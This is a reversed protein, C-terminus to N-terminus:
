RGPPVNVGDIRVIRRSAGPTEVGTGVRAEGGEGLVVTALVSWARGEPEGTLRRGLEPLSAGRMGRGPSLLSVAELLNTKGAGNPGVLFVSAGGTALDARTYSRFDSLALAVALSRM